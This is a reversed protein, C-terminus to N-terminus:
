FYEIPWFQKWSFIFLFSNRLGLNGKNHPLVKLFWYRNKFKFDYANTCYLRRLIKGSLVVSTVFAKQFPNKQQQPHPWIFVAFLRLRMNPLAIYFLDCNSLPIWPNPRVRSSTNSGGLIQFPYKSLIVWIELFWTLRTNINSWMIIPYFCVLCVM